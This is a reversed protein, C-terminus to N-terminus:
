NKLSVSFKESLAQFIKKRIKEVEENTLNKNKDLYVIHFTRTNEYNDLLSVDHIMKSQKKIESILDGTRINRDVFLALDEIIPPYKPLPIYTKKDNAFSVLTDFDLELTVYSREIIIEGLQKNGVNVLAGFKGELTEEFSIKKINFESVIQEILGKAHFYNVESGNIKGKMIVALKLVEKPLGKKQKIYVNSMEFAMIRDSKKNEEIIGKLSGILNTRMYLHQEDLPNKLTIISSLPESALDKPVM